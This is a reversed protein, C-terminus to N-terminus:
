PTSEPTSADVSSLAVYLTSLRITARYLGPQNREADLTIEAPRWLPQSQRWAVMFRGLATIDVQQLVLRVSGEQLRSEAGTAGQRAPRNQEADLRALSRASLGAEALAARVAEVVADTAPEGLFAKPAEAQLSALEELDAQIASAHTREAEYTARAQRGHLGSWAVAVGAVATSVLVATRPPLTM